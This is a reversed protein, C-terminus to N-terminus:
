TESTLRRFGGPYYKEPCVPGAERVTGRAIQVAKKPSLYGTLPFGASFLPCYVVGWPDHYSPQM